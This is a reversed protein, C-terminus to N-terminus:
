SEGNVGKQGIICVQDLTHYVGEDIEKMSQVKLYEIRGKTWGNGEVAV